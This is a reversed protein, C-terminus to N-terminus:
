ASFNLFSHEDVNEVTIYKIGGNLKKHSENTNEKNLLIYRFQIFDECTIKKGKKFLRVLLFTLFQPDIM